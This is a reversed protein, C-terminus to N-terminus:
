GDLREVSWVRGASNAKVRLPTDKYEPNGIEYAVAADNQTLAEEGGVFHIRWRPNGNVTNSLKTLHDITATYELDKTM